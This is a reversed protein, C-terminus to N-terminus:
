PQQGRKPNAIIDADLIAQFMPDIQGKKEGDKDNMFDHLRKTADALNKAAEKDDEKSETLKAVEAAFASRTVEAQIAAYETFHEVKEVGSAIGNIVAEAIPAGKYLIEKIDTSLKYMAENLRNQAADIGAVDGGIRKARDLKALEMNIEHKSREGTIEPSLDALDTATRKVADMFMKLSLAAAGAALAVALLPGSAGALAGTAAAGAGTGAAGSAAAGGAAAAAGSTGSAAAATGTGAAAAASAATGASRMGFASGAFKTARTALDAFRGASGTVLDGVATHALGMEDIKRNISEAIREFFSQNASQHNRNHGSGSARSGADMMDTHQHVITTALNDIVEILQELTNILRQDTSVPQSTSVQPQTAPQSPQATPSPTSRQQPQPQQPASQAPQQSQPLPRYDIRPFHERPMGSSDPVPAASSPSVSQPNNFAAQQQPDEGVLTVKLEVSM